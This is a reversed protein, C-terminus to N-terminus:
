SGASQRDPAAGGRGDGSRSYADRVLVLLVGLFTGTMASLALVLARRPGARWKPIAARDIVRFSFEREGRALMAKQIESEILRSVSQQVVVLSTADLEHRLFALNTEAERLARERMRDNLDDAMENAWSAAVAPDTWVISLRVKGTRKDQVVRRVQKDFRKVADREDPWKKSDAAKWAGRGADWKDAFLVPVLDRKRIFDRTFDSSTLVILPEASGGGGITIGALGALGSLGPLSGALSPASRGQAPMLLVEARYWPPTVALYVLAAAIALASGGLIWWRGRWLRQVTAALDIERDVTPLTAEPPIVYVVRKSAGEDGGPNCTRQSV